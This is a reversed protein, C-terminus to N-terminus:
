GLKCHAVKYMLGWPAEDTFPVLLLDVSGFMIVFVTFDYQLTWTFAAHNVTSYSQNRETWWVCGSSCTQFVDLQQRHSESWARECRGGSCNVGLSAEHDLLLRTLNYKRRQLIWLSRHIFMSALTWTLWHACQTHTHTCTTTHRVCTTEATVPLAPWQTLM